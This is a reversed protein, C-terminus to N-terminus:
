ERDLVSKKACQVSRRYGREDGCEFLSLRTEMPIKADRARLHVAWRLAHLVELPSRNVSGNLWRELRRAGAEDELDAFALMRVSPVTLTPAGLLAAQILGPIDSWKIGAVEFDEPRTEAWSGYEARPHLVPDLNGTDLLVVSDLGSWADVVDTMVGTGLGYGRLGKSALLRSTRGPRGDVLARPGLLLVSGSRMACSPPLGGVLSMAEVRLENARPLPPLVDWGVAAIHRRWM